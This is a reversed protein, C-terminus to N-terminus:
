PIVQQMSQEKAIAEAEMVLDPDHRFSKSLEVVFEFCGRRCNARRTRKLWRFSPIHEIANMIVEIGTQTFAFDEQLGEKTRQGSLM